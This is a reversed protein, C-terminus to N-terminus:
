ANRLIQLFDIARCQLSLLPGSKTFFKIQFLGKQPPGTHRPKDISLGRNAIRLWCHKLRKEENERKNQWYLCTHHPHEKKTRKDLGIQIEKKRRRRQKLNKERKSVSTCVYLFILPFAESAADAVENPKWELLVRISLTYWLVANQMAAAVAWCYSNFIREFRCACVYTAYHLCLLLYASVYLYLLACAEWASTALARIAYANASLDLKLPWVAENPKWPAFTQFVM